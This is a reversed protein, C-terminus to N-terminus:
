ANKSLEKQYFGSTDTQLNDVYWSMGIKVTLVEGQAVVSGDEATVTVIYNKIDTIDDLSVAYTKFVEEDCNEKYISIDLPEDEECKVTFKYNDGYAKEYLGISKFSTQLGTNEDFADETGTLYEGYTKVNAELATFMVEDSIYDDEFIEKRIKVLEEFYSKFILDYNDWGNENILEFYFPYMKEILKGQLSGDDNLTKEGKYSKDDFGKLGDKGKEANYGAERYIIPYMYHKRIYDGYKTSKSMLTTKYANYGDGTSVITEVFSKAVQEPHFANYKSKFTTTTIIVLLAAIIFFVSIGYLKFNFEKNKNAM